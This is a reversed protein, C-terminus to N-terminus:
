RQAEGVRKRWAAFTDGDLAAAAAEAVGPPLEAAGVRQRQVAAVVAEWEPRWRDRLEAALADRGARDLLADRDISEVLVAIAASRRRAARAALEARYAAAAAPGVETWLTKELVSEVGGALPIRGAAQDDVAQRGAALIEARTAADLAPVAARIVSLERQLAQLGRGRRVAALRAQATQMPQPRDDFAPAADGWWWPDHGVPQDVQVLNEIEITVEAHASSAACIAVLLVEPWRRRECTKM